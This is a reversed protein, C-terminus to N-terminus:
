KIRHDDYHGNAAWVLDKHLVTQLLIYNRKKEKKKQKEAM